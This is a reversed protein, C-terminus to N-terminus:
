RLTADELHTVLLQLTARESRVQEDEIAKLTADSPEREDSSEESRDVDFVRRRTHPLIGLKADLAITSFLAATERHIHVKSFLIVAFFDGSPLLGGFGLVSQVGHDRVFEQAPISADEKAHEVHFVNFAQQDADLLLQPDPYLAEDIELGMQRILSAIMPAREVIEISELPIAIHGRSKRRDNWEPVEGATALLTLCPMLERTPQKKVMSELAAQSLEPPLLGFRHTKFCRVLAYNPAGNESNVFNTYFFRVIERAASEMTPAKEAAMRLARGCRIMDRLDFRELDYHTHLTPLNSAM